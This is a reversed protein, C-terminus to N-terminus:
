KVGKAAEEADKKAQEAAAVAALADAEAEIVADMELAKTDFGAQIQKKYADLRAIRAERAKGADKKSAANFAADAKKYVAEATAIGAVDAPNSNKAAEWVEQAETAQNKLTVLEDGIRKKLDMVAQLLNGELYTPGVLRRVGTLETAEGDGFFKNRHYFLFSGAGVAALTGIVTVPDGARLNKGWRGALDIGMQTFRKLGFINTKHIFAFLGIAAASGVGWKAKKSGAFSKWAKGLFGPGSSVTPAPTKAPEAPASAVLQASAALLSVILSLGMIRKNQM